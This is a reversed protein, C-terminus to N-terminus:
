LFIICYGLMCLLLCKLHLNIVKPNTDLCAYFCAYTNMDMHVLLILPNITLILGNAIFILLNIVELFALKGHRCLCTFYLSRCSCNSWKFSCFFHLPMFYRQIFFHFVLERLQKINLTKYLNHAQFKKLVINQVIM